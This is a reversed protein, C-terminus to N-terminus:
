PLASEFPPLHRYGAPKGLSTKGIYEPCFVALHIEVPYLFNLLGFDFGDIGAAMISSLVAMELMHSSIRADRCVGIKGQELYSSFASSFKSVIEVNLAEPVEGRIGSVSIRVGQKM